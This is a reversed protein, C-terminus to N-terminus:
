RATLLPLLRLRTQQRVAVPMLRCLMRSDRSQVRSPRPRSSSGRPTPSMRRVVAPERPALGASESLMARSRLGAAHGLPEYAAGAPGATRCPGATPWSDQSPAAPACALPTWGAPTDLAAGRVHRRQELVGPGTCLAPCLNVRLIPRRTAACSAPREAPVTALVDRTLVGQM